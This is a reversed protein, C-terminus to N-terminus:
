AADFEPLHTVGRTLSAINDAIGKEGRDLTGVLRAVLGALDTSSINADIPLKIVLHASMPLYYSSGTESETVKWTETVQCLVSLGDVRQGSKPSADSGKFVDAVNTVAYRIRNPTDLDGDVAVLVTQGPDDIAVGYSGAAPALPTVASGATTQSSGTLVSISM